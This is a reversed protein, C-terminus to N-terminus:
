NDALFLVFAIFAYAIETSVKEKPIILHDFVSNSTRLIVIHVVQPAVFDILEQVTVKVGPQRVVFATPLECYEPDPRGVVGAEKVANHQLLVAELEAPSTQFGAYNIVDKIRDVFYVYEDKDYYGLDGTQLFGEEDLYQERPIGVYGKMLVPGKVCIEGTTRPGLPERTSLDVIKLTTAPAPTGVSGPRPGRLARSESTPEGAETMGYGQIIDKLHPLRQKLDGITKAHLYTSRSYILKLSSLDYKDLLTSKVLATIVIPICLLM